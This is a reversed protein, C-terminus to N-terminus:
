TQKLRSMDRMSFLNLNVVAILRLNGKQLIKRFMRVSEGIETM